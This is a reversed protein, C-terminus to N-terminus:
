HHDVIKTVDTIFEMKINQIQYQLESKPTYSM